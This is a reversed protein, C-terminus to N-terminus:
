LAHVRSVCEVLYVILFRACKSLSFKDRAIFGRVRIHIVSCMIPNARM